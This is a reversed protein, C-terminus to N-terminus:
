RSVATIAIVIGVCVLFWFGEILVGRWTEPKHAM